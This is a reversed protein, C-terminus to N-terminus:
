KKVETGEAVLDYEYIFGYCLEISHLVEFPNKEQDYSVRTRIVVNDGLKINLLKAERKAAKAVKLSERAYAPTIKFQSRYIEFLETIEDDLLKKFKELPLYTTQVALPKKDVLRLRRIRVVESDIPIDFGDAVFNLSKKLKVVRKDLIRSSPEKGANRVQDSFSNLGAKGPVMRGSSSIVLTERGSGRSIYGEMQLELLARRVTGRSAGYHKQLKPESPIAKNVEYEGKEIKEMLDKMIKFYIPERTKM